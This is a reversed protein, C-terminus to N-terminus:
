YMSVNVTRLQQEALIFLVNSMGSTVPLDLLVVSWFEARYIVMILMCIEAQIHSDVFFVLKYVGRDSHLWAAEV